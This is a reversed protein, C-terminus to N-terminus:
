VTGRVGGAVQGQERRDGRLQMKTTVSALSEELYYGTTYHIKQRKLGLVVRFMFAKM